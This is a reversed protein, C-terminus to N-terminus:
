VEDMLALVKMETPYFTSFVCTSFIIDRDQISIYRGTLALPLVSFFFASQAHNEESGTFPILSNAKM